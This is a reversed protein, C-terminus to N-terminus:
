LTCATSDLNMDGSALEICAPVMDIEEIENIHATLSEVVNVVGGWKGSDSM